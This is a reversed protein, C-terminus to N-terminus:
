AVVLIPLMLVENLSKGCLIAWHHDSYLIQIFKKKHHSYQRIPGLTTDEFGNWSPYQKKLIKLALNITEDTLQEGNLIQETIFSSMRSSTRCKGRKVASIKTSSIISIEENKQEQEPKKLREARQINEGKKLEDSLKIRARYFQRMMEARQGVRHTYPHRKKFITLQPKTTRARKRSCSKTSHSAKLRKKSSQRTILLSQQQKQLSVKGTRTLNAIENRAIKLVDENKVIYTLDHLEKLNARLDIQLSRVSNRHTKLTENHVRKPPSNSIEKCKEFLDKEQNLSLNTQRETNNSSKLHTKTLSSSTFLKSDLNIWVHDRFLQSIDNFTRHNGEIVAFFHKCIMRNNKFDPCTCSCYRQENGFDVIYEKKKLETLDSSKASYCTSNIPEVSRIMAHNVAGKRM